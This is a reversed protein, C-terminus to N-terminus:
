FPIDDEVGPDPKSEPPTQPVSKHVNKGQITEIKWAQLNTFYKGEWERGKVNFHVNVKMGTIDQELYSLAKGMVQFKVLQPYKEDMDDIVFEQVSFSASKEELEGVHKVIGVMEFSAM